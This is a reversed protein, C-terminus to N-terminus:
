AGRLAFSYAQSEAKPGDIDMGVAVVADVLDARQTAALAGLTGGISFGVITTPRGFRGRLHELMLITDAVLLSLTLEPPNAGGASLGCGRQDWYVVAFDKEPNLSRGLSKAENIMPLGPGQQILLLPPNRANEARIRVWQTTDGVPVAELKDIEM